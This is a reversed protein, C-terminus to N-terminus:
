PARDWPYFNHGTYDWTCRWNTPNSNACGSGPTRNEYHWGSANQYQVNGFLQHNSVTGGGQDGDNLMEDQYEVAAVGPWCTEIDSVSRSYKFVEDIYYNHSSGVKSIQFFHLGTAANAIKIFPTGFVLGCPGTERQYFVWYYTIGNNWPCTNVSPDPCKAYGGQYINVGAAATQPGDLSVWSLSWSWVKTAAQVCLNENVYEIEAYVGKLGTGSRGNGLFKNESVGTCNAWATATAPVASLTGVALASAIILAWGSRKKM